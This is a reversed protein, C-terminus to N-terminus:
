PQHHKQGNEKNVRERQGQRKKKKQLGAGKWYKVVNYKLTVTHVNYSANVYAVTTYQKTPRRLVYYHIQVKGQKM